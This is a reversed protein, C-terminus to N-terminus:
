IRNCRGCSRRLYARSSALEMYVYLRQQAEEEAEADQVFPMSVMRLVMCLAHEATRQIADAAHPHDDLALLVTHVHRQPNVEPMVISVHGPVRPAFIEPHNLFQNTVRLIFKNEYGLSKLRRRM